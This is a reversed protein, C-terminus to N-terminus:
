PSCWLQNDVQGCEVLLHLHICHGFCQPNKLRLRHITGSIETMVLFM